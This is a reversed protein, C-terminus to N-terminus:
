KKEKKKLYPVIQEKVMQVAEYTTENAGYEKIIREATRMVNLKTKSVDFYKCLRKLQERTPLRYGREIKSLMPSDIDTRKSVQHLTESKENRLERLYQGLGSNLKEM